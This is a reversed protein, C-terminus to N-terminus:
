QSGKAAPSSSPEPSPKSSGSAPNTEAKASPEAAILNSSPPAQKLTFTRGLEWIMNGSKLDILNYQVIAGEKGEDEWNLLLIELRHDGASNLTIPSGIQKLWSKARATGGILAVEKIQKWGSPLKNKEALLEIDKEWLVRLRQADGGTQIKILQYVEKAFYGIAGLAILLFLTSLTTKLFKM